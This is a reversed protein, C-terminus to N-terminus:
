KKHTRYKTKRQKRNKGLKKSKLHKKKLGKKLKKTGGRLNRFAKKTSGEGQKLFETTNADSNVKGVNGSNTQNTPQTILTKLRISMKSFIYLIRPILYSTSMTGFFVSWQILEYSQRTKTYMKERFLNIAYGQNTLYKTTLSEATRKYCEITPNSSFVTSMVNALQNIMTSGFIGINNEVLNVDTQCIAKAEETVNSIYNSFIEGVSKTFSEVIKDRRSTMVSCSFTRVHEWIFSFYTMEDANLNKIENIAKEIDGKISENIDSVSVNLDDQLLTSLKVYVIWFLFLSTVFMVLFVFDSIASYNVTSKKPKIIINDTEEDGGGTTMVLEKPYLRKILTEFAEKFKGENNIKFGNQIILETINTSVFSLFEQEDGSLTALENKDYQDSLVDFILNLDGYTIKDCM